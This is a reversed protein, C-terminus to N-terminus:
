PGSPGDLYVGRWQHPKVPENPPRNMHDSDAAHIRELEDLRESLEDIQDRRRADYAVRADHMTHNLEFETIIANLMDALTQHATRNQLGRHIRELEEINPCETSQDDHAM